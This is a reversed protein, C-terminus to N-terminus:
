RRRKAVKATKAKAKDEASHMIPIPGLDPGVRTVRTDNMVYHITRPNVPKTIGTDPDVSVNDGNAVEFSFGPQSGGPAIV